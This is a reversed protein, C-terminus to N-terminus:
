FEILDNNITIELIKLLYIKTIIALGYFLLVIQLFFRLSLFVIVTLEYFWM